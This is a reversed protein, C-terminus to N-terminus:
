LIKTSKNLQKLLKEYFLINFDLREQWLHEATKTGLPMDRLEQRRKLAKQTLAIKEELSLKSFNNFELIEYIRYADFRDINDADGVSEAFPTRHWQFDAMDDVHVAIGYLIDNMREEPMGLEQLFPKAITASLRGHAMREEGTKMEQCYAIDHLLCAIVMDTVSFGEALAIEKGINAVRYSHELRYNLEEPHEQLYPSNDFTEKLFVETREVWQTNM